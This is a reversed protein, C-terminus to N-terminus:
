KLLKIAPAGGTGLWALALLAVLLAAVAAVALWSHQQGLRSELQQKPRWSGRNGQRREAPTTGATNADEDAGSRQDAWRRMASRREEAWSDDAPGPQLLGSFAELDAARAWTVRDTSLDVEAPLRGLVLDQAIAATPFPGRVREAVRVYWLRQTETKV